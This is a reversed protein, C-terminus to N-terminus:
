PKRATRPARDLYCARTLADQDGSMHIPTQQDVAVSFRDEASADFLEAWM